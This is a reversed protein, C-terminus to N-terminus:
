STRVLKIKYGGGELAGPDTIAKVSLRLADPAPVIKTPTHLYTDAGSDTSILAGQGAATDLRWLFRAIDSLTDSYLVLEYEAGPVLDEGADAVTWTTVTIKSSSEFVPDGATITGSEVPFGREPDATATVPLTLSQVEYTGDHGLGFAKAMTQEQNFHVTAITLAGGADGSVTKGVHGIEYFHTIVLGPASANTGDARGAETASTRLWYGRTTGVNNELKVEATGGKVVWVDEGDAVGDSYMIGIPELGDAICLTVAKDNNDEYQLVTGKVSLSGTKNLMKSALGGLPTIATNSNIYIFGSGM